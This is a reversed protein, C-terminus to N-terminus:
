PFPILEAVGLEIGLGIAVVVFAAVIFRAVWKSTATALALMADTPSTADEIQSREHRVQSRSQRIGQELLLRLDQARQESRRSRRRRRPPRRSGPMGRRAGSDATNM